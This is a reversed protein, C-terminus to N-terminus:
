RPTRPSPDDLRAMTCAPCLESSGKLETGCEANYGKCHALAAAVAVVADSLYPFGLEGDPTHLQEGSKDFAEHCGLLSVTYGVFRGDRYIARRMFRHGRRVIRTTVNSPIVASRRAAPNRVGM